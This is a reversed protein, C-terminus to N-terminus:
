KTLEMIIAWKMRYSPVKWLRHGPGFGKPLTREIEARKQEIRGSRILDVLYTTHLLSSSMGQACNSRYYDLDPYYKPNAYWGGHEATFRGGIRIPTSYKPNYFQVITGTPYLGQGQVFVLNSGGKWHIFTDARYMAFTTDIAACYCPDTIGSVSAAEQWHDKEITKIHKDMYPSDPYDTKLALGIKAATTQRLGEIMMEPWDQPMEPNPIIDPDSIVFFQDRIMRLGPNLGEFILNDKNRIVTCSNELKKLLTLMEPQTSANDCIAIKYPERTRERIADVMDSLQLPRCRSLILIHIKMKGM